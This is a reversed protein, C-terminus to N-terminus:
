MNFQGRSTVIYYLFLFKISVFPILKAPDKKVVAFM